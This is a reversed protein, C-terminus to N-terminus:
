DTSNKPFSVYIYDTNFNPLQCQGIVQILELYHPKYKENFNFEIIEEEFEFIFTIEQNSVM